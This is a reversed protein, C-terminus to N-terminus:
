TVVVENGAAFVAAFGLDVVDECGLVSFSSCVHFLGFADRGELGVVPGDDCVDVCM